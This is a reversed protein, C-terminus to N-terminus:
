SLRGGTCRPQGGLDRRTAIREYGTAEMLRQVEGAQDFGHELLLWAGPLLHEGAGAVIEHLAELGSSGPTLATTSRPPTSTLRKQVPRASMSAPVRSRWPWM